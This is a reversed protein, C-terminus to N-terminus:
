VTATIEWGQVSELAGPFAIFYGHKLPPTLWHREPQPCSTGPTPPSFGLGLALVVELRSPLDPLVSQSWDVVLTQHGM